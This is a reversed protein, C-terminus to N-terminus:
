AGVLIIAGSLATGSVTAQTTTTTVTAGSVVDAVTPATGFAVPFTYTVGGSTLASALIMVLKFTSGGFPQNCTMSGSTGNVVTTAATPNVTAFSANGSHDIYAKESGAVACSLFKQVGSGVATETRNIYLDIGGATLTQNYTPTISVGIGIGSSNTFGGSCIQTGTVATTHTWGDIILATGAGGTSYLGACQWNNTVSGSGGTFAGVITVTGSNSVSFTSAGASNLGQFLFGTQSAWGNVVIGTGVPNGPLVGSPTVSGNDVFTYSAAGTSAVTAMLLEAGTTRGYVKYSTAGSVSNWKVNISNTGSLTANGGSAVTEACALTTGQANAAAIRYYYSTSGGTGNYTFTPVAPVALNNLTVSGGNQFLQGAKDFGSLTADTTDLNTQINATQSAANTLSLGVTSTSSAVFSGSGTAAVTTPTIAGLTFSLAGAANTASVGNATTVSSVLTGSTPLTVNTTGTMTFTTAYAGATTLSGALSLSGAPGFTTGNPLGIVGSGGASFTINGAADFYISQSAPGFIYQDSGVTLGASFTTAGLTGPINGATLINWAPAASAAGTGTQSLFKQIGNTTTGALRTGVGSAGGYIMDGLATMPSLANFATSATTQGTGGSAVALTVSLGAATGTTNQDLTPFTCNTLTGSAPTGLAISAGFSTLSSATVGTALTSGTVTGAAATVTIAASGDFNVGNIARPTTLTAASGTTSQNWTPVAEWAPIGGAVTLLNGTSGVGLRTGAGGAGGYLLDGASTMPSLAKFAAAATIQGTGGSAVALTASLGAATTATTANGSLPGVFGAATMTENSYLAGIGDIILNADGFVSVGTIALTPATLVASGTLTISQDTIGGAATVQELTPTPTTIGSIAASLAADNADVLGLISTQWYAGSDTGPQVGTSAAVAEWLLGSESVTAGVAYATGSNWAAPGNIIGRVGNADPASILIPSPM